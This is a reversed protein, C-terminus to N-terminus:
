NKEWVLGAMYAAVFLAANAFAPMKKRTLAFILLLAVTGIIAPIRAHSAELRLRGIGGARAAVLGSLMLASSGVLGGWVSDQQQIPKTSWEHVFYIRGWPLVFRKVDLIGIGEIFSERTRVIDKKEINISTWLMQVHIQEGHDHVEALSVMFLFVPILPLTFLWYVPELGWLFFCATAGLAAPLCIRIISPSTNLKGNKGM